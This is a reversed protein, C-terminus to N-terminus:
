LQVTESETRVVVAPLNLAEQGAGQRSKVKTVYDAIAKKLM